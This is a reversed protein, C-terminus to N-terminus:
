DNGGAEGNVEDPNEAVTSELEVALGEEELFMGGYTRWWGASVGRMLEARRHVERDFARRQKDTMSGPPSDALRLLEGFRTDAAREYTRLLSALCYLMADPLPVTTPSPPVVWREAPAPAPPPAGADVHVFPVLVTDSPQEQM